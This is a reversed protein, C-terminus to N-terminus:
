KEYSCNYGSFYDEIKNKEMKLEFLNKEEATKMSVDATLTLAKKTIEQKCNSFAPQLKGLGNLFTKCLDQKEIASRQAETYKSLDMTAVMSGADEYMKKGDNYTFNMKIDIGSTTTSCVVKSTKNGCGVVLACVLIVAVSMFVRKM